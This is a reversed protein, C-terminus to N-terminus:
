EDDDEAEDEGEEEDDGDEDDALSVAKWGRLDTM